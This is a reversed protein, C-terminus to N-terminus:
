GLLQVSTRILEESSGDLPQFEKAAAPGWGETIACMSGRRKEGRLLQSYLHLEPNCFPGRSGLTM